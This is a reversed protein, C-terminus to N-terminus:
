GSSGSVREREREEKRIIELSSSPHRESESAAKSM